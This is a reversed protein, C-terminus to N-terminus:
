ASGPKLFGLFCHTFSTLVHYLKPNVQPTNSFVSWATCLTGPYVDPRYPPWSPVSPPWSPISPPWSPIHGSHSWCLHGINSTQGVLRTFLATYFQRFYLAIFPLQDKWPWQLGKLQTIISAGPDNVKKIRCRWVIFNWSQKNTFAQVPYEFIWFGHVWSLDSLHKHHALFPSSM